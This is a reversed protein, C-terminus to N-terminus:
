SFWRAVPRRKKSVASGRATAASYAGDHGSREVSKANDVQGRVDGPRQPRHDEAVLAGVDDLDLRDVAAVM